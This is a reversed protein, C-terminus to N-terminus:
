RCLPPSNIRTLGPEIGPPPAHGRCRAPAEPSCGLPWSGTQFAPAPRSDRTPEVGVSEAFPLERLPWRVTDAPVAVAARLALQRGRTVTARTPWPNAREPEHRLQSRTEIADLLDRTRPGSLGRPGPSVEHGQRTSPQCLPLADTEFATALAPTRRPNSGRARRKGQSPSPPGVPAQHPRPFERDFGTKASSTGTSPRRAEMWSTAPEFGTM